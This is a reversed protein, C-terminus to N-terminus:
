HVAQASVLVFRCLRGVMKPRQQLFGPTPYVDVVGDIEHSM